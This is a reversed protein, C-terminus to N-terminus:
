LRGADGVALLFTKWQLASTSRSQVLAAPTEKTEYRRTVKFFYPIKESPPSQM